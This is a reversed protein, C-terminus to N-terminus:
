ALRAAFEVAPWAQYASAVMDLPTLYVVEEVVVLGARTPNPDWIQRGDLGVVMHGVGAANLGGIMHHHGAFGDFHAYLNSGPPGKAVSWMVGHERKLWEWLRNTTAVRFSLDDVLAGPEWLDPVDGLECELLSAICAETCNGSPAGFRTQTVPKM